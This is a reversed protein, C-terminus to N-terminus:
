RLRKTEALLKEFAPTLANASRLEALVRESKPCSEQDQLACLGAYAVALTQRSQLNTSDGVIEIARRYSARAQERDGTQAEIAAASALVSVTVARQTAVTSIKPMLANMAVMVPVIIARAEALRGQSALEDALVQSSECRAMEDLWDGTEHALASLDSLSRRAARVSEDHQGDAALALALNRWVAALERRGIAALTAHEREAVTRRLSVVAEGSKGLRFLSEGVGGQATLQDFALAANTPDDKVPGALLDAAARYHTLAEAWLVGRQAVDGALMEATAVDQRYSLTKPARRLLERRTVIAETMKARAVDANGALGAVEGVRLQGWGLLWLMQDNTPAELVARAATAELGLYERRAGVLDGDLRLQDGLRMHILGATRVEGFDHPHDAIAANAHQLAIVFHRAGDAERGAARDVDGIRMEIRAIHHHTLGDVGLQASRRDLLALAALYAARADDLKNQDSEVDGLIVLASVEQLLASSDLTTQQAVATYYRQVESALGELADLRGIAQLKEYLRDLLFGVLHTGSDRLTSARREALLAADREQAIRRLSTAGVAIVTVIALTAAILVGRRRRAWRGLLARPSYDHARVLEGAVLRKLDAALEAADPYRSTPAAAMCRAVITGLEPALDPEVTALPPTAAPSAEPSRGSLTFYLLAGFSYVDARADVEEGRAQEPAAYRRTGVAGQTSSTLAESGVAGDGGAGLEKAVGWDIILTEGHDGVLVNDPTLDRHVVGRGHAYALADAVAILRPLLALRENAGGCAAGTHRLNKGQVCKMAIFPEGSPLRGAEYVPVIGPHQLQAALRAERLFRELHAADAHLPRKIAVLRDHRRDRAEVVVGMGGKALERGLEYEGVAVVRLEVTTPQAHASTASASASNTLEDVM